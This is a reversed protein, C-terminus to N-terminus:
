EDVFRYGARSRFRNVGYFLGRIASKAGALNMLNRVGGGLGTTDMFYKFAALKKGVPSTAIDAQQRAIRANDRASSTEALTKERMSRALSIETAQKAANAFIAAMESRTSKPEAHAAAGSPVSPNLGTAILPNYGAAELDRRTMQYRSGFMREEWDRQKQAELANFDMQAQNAQEQGRRASLGSFIGAGISAITFPDM